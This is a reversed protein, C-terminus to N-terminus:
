SRSSRLAEALELMANVKAAELLYQARGDPQWENGALAKRAARLQRVAEQGPTLVESETGAAEDDAVGDTREDRRRFVQKRVSGTAILV